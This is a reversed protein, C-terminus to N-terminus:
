PAKKIEFCCHIKKDRFDPPITQESIDKVSYSKSIEKDLKFKRNNNSFILTGGPLLYRMLTQIMKSHDRQVDFDERMSKSNSFSPPDLLILDYKEGIQDIYKLINAKIFEHPKATLNNLEFNEKAWDLYTNSMDVTTLTAGGKAAAVSLSGTYSFLNLVKKNNLGKSLKFRLPRHDLFLGSDLYNILNVKFELEGEKVTFYSNQKNLKEYQANGKKIERSKFFINESEVGLAAQIAEKIEVKHHISKQILETEDSSIRKGKEYCIVRENYINIIYPYEPIDKDFLRYAYIGNTKLYSKLKKKNKVLRNYIMSYQQM